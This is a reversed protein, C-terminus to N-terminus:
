KKFIKELKDLYDLKYAIIIKDGKELVTDQDAFFAEEGRYILLIKAKKEDIGIESIKKGDLDDTVEYVHLRISTQPLSYPLASFGKLMNLVQMIVLRGPNIIYEIGHSYLLDNYVPNKIRVIINKIGLYKALLAILINYRDDGTLIVIYDTEKIDAESLTNPDTADGYIVLCDLKEALDEAREKNAEIIIVNHKEKILSKALEVGSDGGGVIIIKM